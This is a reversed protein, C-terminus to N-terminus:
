SKLREAAGYGWSFVPNPSTVNYWPNQTTPKGDEFYLRVMPSQGYTHNLVMDIIVAIDRAHCADIFKKLSDAPGYYKDPAFYFSPNYGWSDNGEFESIPM